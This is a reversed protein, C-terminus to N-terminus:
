QTARRLREILDRMQGFAIATSVKPMHAHDHLWVVLEAEDKSLTLAATKEHRNEGSGERLASGGCHTCPQWGHGWGVFIMGPPHNRDSARPRCGHCLEIAGDPKHEACYLAAAHIHAPDAGCTDCGFPTDPNKSTM